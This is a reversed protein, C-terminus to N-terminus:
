HQVDEWVLPTVNSSNTTMLKWLPSSKSSVPKTLVDAINESSPIWGNSSLEGKEHSGHFAFIYIKLRRETTAGDKAVINLLTKSDTYAEFCLKRGIIELLVQRIIFAFEFGLVLGQVETEMVSRAVRRCRNSGYHFIKASGTKDVLSIVYGLHSKLDKTNYFYADSVM